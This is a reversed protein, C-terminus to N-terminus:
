RITFNGQTFDKQSFPKSLNHNDKYYYWLWDDRTVITDYGNFYASDVYNDDCFNVSEEEQTSGENETSNNDCKTLCVFTVFIQFILGFNILSFNPRFQM